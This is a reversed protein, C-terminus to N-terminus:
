RLEELSATCTGHGARHLHLMVGDARAWKAMSQMATYGVPSPCAVIGYRGGIPEM